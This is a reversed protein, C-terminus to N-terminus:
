GATKHIPNENEVPRTLRQGANIVQGNRKQGDFVFGLILAAAQEPTKVFSGQIHGNLDTSVAGPQVALIEVPINQKEFAM